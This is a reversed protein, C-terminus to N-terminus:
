RSRFNVVEKKMIGPDTQSKKGDFRPNFHFLIDGNEGLLEVGFSGRPIGEVECYHDKIIKQDYLINLSGHSSKVFLHKSLKLTGGSIDGEFPLDIDGFWEVVYVINDGTIEMYKVQDFPFRHQYVHVM